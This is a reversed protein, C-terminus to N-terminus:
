CPLLARRGSDIRRPRVIAANYSNKLDMVEAGSLARNYILVDDLIGAFKSNFGDGFRLSETSDHVAAPATGSLSAAQSVADFYIAMRAAGALTPDFVCTIHTWGVAVGSSTNLFARSAQTGNPTLYFSVRGASTFTVAYSRQGDTRGKTVLHQNVATTSSVYAWFAISMAGTISLGPVDAIEVYSTSGNFQGAQGQKGAVATVDVVSSANYSGTSDIGDHVNSWRAIYDNIPM